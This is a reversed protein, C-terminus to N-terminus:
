PRDGGGAAGARASPLPRDVTVRRGQRAVTLDKRRGAAQSFEEAEGESDWETAWTFARGNAPGQYVRYADGAWGEAAKRAQEEGAGWEMLLIRVNFEGWVGQSVEAWGSPLGSLSPAAVRMPPDTRNLAKEPHLVQEMSLPPARYLGNLEAAGGRDVAAQVLALGVMYGALLNDQIYAPASQGLLERGLALSGMFDAAEAQRAPSLKLAGYLYRMMVWTADGEVLCRAASARDENERDEIPLDLLPFHQDVLAHALEHVLFVDSLSFGEVELGALLEEEGLPAASVYLVKDRPDYLGVVQEELLSQLVARLNMKPPILGFAKLVAENKPWEAEPFEREMERRVVTRLVDPEVRRIPVPRQFSLGRLVEVQKQLDAIRDEAGWASLTLFALLAFGAKRM